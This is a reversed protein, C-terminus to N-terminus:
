PDRRRVTPPTMMTALEEQTPAKDLVELDTVKHIGTQRRPTEWMVRVMGTTSADGQVLGRWTSRGRYNVTRGDILSM